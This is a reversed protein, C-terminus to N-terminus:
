LGLYAIICKFIMKLKINLYPKVQSTTMYQIQM